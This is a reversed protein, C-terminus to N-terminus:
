GELWARMAIDQHNEWAKSYTSRRFNTLKINVQELVLYTAKGDKGQQRVEIYVDQPSSPDPGLEQERLLTLIARLKASIRLKLDQAVKGIELIEMPIWGTEEPGAPPLLPATVHYTILPNGEPDIWDSAGEGVIAVRPPAFVHIHSPAYGEAALANQADSCYRQVRPAVPLLWIPKEASSALSSHEQLLPQLAPICSFQDKPSNFIAYYLRGVILARIVTLGTGELAMLGSLPFPSSESPTSLPSYVATINAEIDLVARRFSWLVVALNEINKVDHTGDLSFVGPIRRAIHPGKVTDCVAAAFKIRKGVFSVLFAAIPSKARWDTFHRAGIGYLGDCQDFAQGESGDVLDIEIIVVPLGTHRHVRAVNMAERCGEFVPQNMSWHFDQTDPVATKMADLVRAAKVLHNPSSPVTKLITRAAISTALFDFEARIQPLNQPVSDMLVEYLYFSSCILYPETPIRNETDGKRYMLARDLEPLSYQFKLSSHIPHYSAADSDSLGRVQATSSPDQLSAFTERRVLEIADFRDEIEKQYGHSPLLTSLLVYPIKVGETDQLESPGRGDSYELSRRQKLLHQYYNEERFGTQSKLFRELESALRKLEPAITDQNFIENFVNSRLGARYKARAVPSAIGPFTPQGQPQRRSTRGAM